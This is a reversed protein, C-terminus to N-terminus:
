SFWDKIQSALAFQAAEFQKQRHGNAGSPHPFGQLVRSPDLHGRAVCYDLIEEVARGLPLILCTPNMKLEPVFVTEVMEMLAAHRLPKPTHGTYNKQHVFVPYKLVSGTRLDDSEFLAASSKIAMVKALGLTDLMTILNQRMTGAFAVRPKRLAAAREKSAGAQIAAAAEEYAIRMQNWGPTIGLIWLKPNVPKEGIPSYWIDLVGDSFLKLQPDLQEIATPAVSPVLSAYSDLANFM